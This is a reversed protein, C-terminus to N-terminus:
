PTHYVLNGKHTVPMGMHIVPMRIKNRVSHSSTDAAQSNADVLVPTKFAWTIAQGALFDSPFKLYMIAPNRPDFTVAPNGALVLGRVQTVIQGGLGTGVVMPRDWTVRITDPDTADLVSLKVQPILPLKGSFMDKGVISDLVLTGAVITGVIITDKIISKIAM